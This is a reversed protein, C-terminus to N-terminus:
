NFRLENGDSAAVSFFFDVLFTFLKGEGEYGDLNSPSALEQHHNLYASTSKPTGDNVDLQHDYVEGNDLIQPSAIDGMNVESEKTLATHNKLNEFGLANLLELPQTTYTADRDTLIM